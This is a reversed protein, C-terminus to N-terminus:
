VKIGIVTVDDVQDLDGKWQEFTQTLIKKQESATKEHVNMLLEKFLSTKFKKGQAGGFQDPYGDTFLYLMDGKQLDIDQNTFDEMRMYYSIPMRDGNIQILEHDRILYLTNNAGAFHMINNRFDVNIISGDMGDRAEAM